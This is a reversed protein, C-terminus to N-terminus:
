QGSTGTRPDLDEFTMGDKADVFKGDILLQLPLPLRRSALAAFPAALASADVLRVSCRWVRSRLVAVYLTIAASLAAGRHRQGVTACEAQFRGLTGKSNVEQSGGDRARCQQLIPHHFPPRASPPAVARGAVRSGKGILAQGCAEGAARRAQRLNERTSWTSPCFLHIFLIVTQQWFGNETPKGPPFLGFAGSPQM